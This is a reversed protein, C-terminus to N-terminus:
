SFRGGIMKMWSEGGLGNLFADPGHVAALLDPDRAHVVTVYRLLFLCKAAQLPGMIEPQVNGAVGSVGIRSAAAFLDGVVASATAPTAFIQLVRLVGHKDGHALYGGVAKGRRDQVIRALPTGRDEKRAAHSILFGLAAADFDPRLAYSAAIERVVDSLGAPTVDQGASAFAEPLPPILLGAARDLLATVPRFARLLPLRRAGATAALTLPQLVRVWEMSRGAVMQGGLKQWMGFSIPNATESISLDQPGTLYARLLRAGALPDDAPAEAMLSGAYAARIKRGRLLMPVALVGIFGGITGDTAVYVLSGIDPDSWPHHCFTEAFYDALSSPPPEKSKRFITQFLEAVRPADPPVFRRIEAM